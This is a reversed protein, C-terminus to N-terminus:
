LVPRRRSRDYLGAFAGLVLVGLLVVLRPEGSGAGPALAGSLTGLVESALQAAGGDVSLLTAFALAEVSWIAATLAMLTAVKGRLLARSSQLADRLAHMAALARNAWQATYRRILWAKAMGVSEPLLVIAAATLGLFAVAALVVPAVAQVADPRLALVVTGALAIAAADFTREIWLAKLGHVPGRSARGIALVRALEGLKLPLLAAIPATLAHAVAVDRVSRGSDGLLIVLRAIRLVHAVLYIALALALRPLWVQGVAHQLAPGDTAATALAGLATLGVAVGLSASSLPGRAAARAANM